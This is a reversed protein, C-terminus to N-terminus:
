NADSAIGSRITACVSEIDKGLSKIVFALTRMKNTHYVRLGAFHQSTVKSLLAKLGAGSWLQEIRDQKFGFVRLVIIATERLFRESNLFDQVVQANLDKQPLCRRKCLPEGGSYVYSELLHGAFLESMLILLDAATPDTERDYLTMLDDLPALLKAFKEVTFATFDVSRTKDEQDDAQKIIQEFKILPKKTKPHVDENVTLTRAGNVFEGGVPLSSTRKKISALMCPLNEALWGLEQANLAVMFRTAAYGTGWKGLQVHAFNFEKDATHLVLRLKAETNNFVYFSHELVTTFLTERSIDQPKSLSM